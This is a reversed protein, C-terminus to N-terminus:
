ELELDEEDNISINNNQNKKAALLESIKIQKDKDKKGPSKTSKKIKTNEKDDEIWAIIKIPLGLTFEKTVHQFQGDSEHGTLVTKGYGGAPPGGGILTYEVTWDHETDNIITVKSGM